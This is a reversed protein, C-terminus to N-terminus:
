LISFGGFLERWLESIYAAEHATGGKVNHHDHGEVGGPVSGSFSVDHYGKSGVGRVLTSRFDVGAEPCGAVQSLDYRPRWGLEDRAREHYM